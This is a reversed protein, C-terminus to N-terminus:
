RYYRRWIIWTFLQIEVEQIMPIAELEWKINLEMYIQTVPNYKYAPINYFGVKEYLKIAKSSKLTTCLRLFCIGKEKSLNILECLLMKGYGNGQYEPLVFLRKVEGVGNQSDTIKLGISGIVEQGSLLILFEGGSQICKSYVNDLDLEKQEQPFTYAMIEYMTSLLKKLSNRYVEDYKIVKM